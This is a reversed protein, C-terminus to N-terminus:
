SLILRQLFLLDQGYTYENVGGPGTYNFLSSNNYASLDPAYVSGSPTRQSLDQPNLVVQPISTGAVARGYGGGGGANTTPTRNPEPTPTTANPDFVWDPGRPGGYAEYEYNAQIDDTPIDYTLDPNAWDIGDDYFLGAQGSAAPHDLNVQGSPVYTNVPLGAATYLHSKDGVAM